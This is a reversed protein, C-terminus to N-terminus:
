ITRPFSYSNSATNRVKGQLNSFLLTVPWPIIPSCTLATLVISLVSSELGALTSNATLSHAPQMSELCLFMLPWPCTFVGWPSTGFMALLSQRKDPSLRYYSLFRSHVGAWTFCLLGPNLLGLYSASYTRILSHVVNKAETGNNFLLLYQRSIWDDMPIESKPVGGFIYM